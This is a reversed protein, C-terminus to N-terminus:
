NNEGKTIEKLLEEKDEFVKYPYDIGLNSYYLIKINHEACRKLKNEDLMKRREFGKEGGYREVKFFHQGGQCEIAINYKPIYFDLSQLGLWKNKYQPIFDINNRILILEIEDELHSRKCKPCGNGFLHKSPTQRFLGHKKCYMDMPEHNKIYTDWDYKYKEGHINRFCEEREDNTMFSFRQSSCKPCGNGNLHSNANQTFDGHIPCTIVVDHKADIYNCHTYIYKGKHKITAKKIFDENTDRQKETIHERSCSKCISGIYIQAPTRYQVGHKQCIIELPYYYGKYIAKSIDYENGYKEFVRKEFLKQDNEGFVKKIKKKDTSCKRCGQGQQHKYPTIWFEGHTPCIVKVKGKEDRNNCDTEDYIYKDGHVKKFNEIWEENTYKPMKYYKNIM